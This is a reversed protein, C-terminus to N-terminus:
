TACVLLIVSLAVAQFHSIRQRLCRQRAHFCIIKSDLVGSRRRRRRGRGLSSFRLARTNTGEGRPLRSTATSERPLSSTTSPASMATTLIHFTLSSLRVCAKREGEREREREGERRAREKATITSRAAGQERKRVV